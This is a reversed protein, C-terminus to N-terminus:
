CDSAQSGGLRVRLPNQLVCVSAPVINLVTRGMTIANLVSLRLEVVHGRMTAVRNRRMRVSALSILRGTGHNLLAVNLLAVNLLAVNLLAVNLLAIWLSTDNVGDLSLRVDVPADLLRAMNLGVLRKARAILLRVQVSLRVRIEHRVGRDVSVVPSMATMDVRHTAACSM